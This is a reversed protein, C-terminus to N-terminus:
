IDKFIKEPHQTVATHVEDIIGQLETNGHINNIGKDILNNDGM